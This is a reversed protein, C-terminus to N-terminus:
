IRKMGRTKRKAKIMAEKVVKQHWNKNVSKYFEEIRQIQGGLMAPIVFPHPPAPKPGGHGFEILFAQRADANGVRMRYSPYYRKYGKLAKISKYLAGFEGSESINRRRGTDDKGRWNFAQKAYQRVRAADLKAAAGLAEESINENVLNPIAKMIADMYDWGEGDVPDITFEYLQDKRKPLAM